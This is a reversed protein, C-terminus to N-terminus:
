FPNEVRLFLAPILRDASVLEAALQPDREGAVAAHLLDESLDFSWNLGQLANRMPLFLSQGISPIESSRFYSDEPFHNAGFFFHIRIAIESGMEYSFWSRQGTRSSYPVKQSRKSASHLLRCMCVAYDSM